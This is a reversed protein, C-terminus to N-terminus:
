SVVKVNFAGNQTANWIRLWIPLVAETGRASSIDGLDLINIMESNFNQWFAIYNPCHAPLSSQKHRIERVVATFHTPFFRPNNYVM